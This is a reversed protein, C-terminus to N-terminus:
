NAAHMFQIEMQQLREKVQQNDAKLEAIEAKQAQLLQYLGQIAALAVGDADVTNITKDSTGLGFAAHFDQAMPGIHRIEDEQAKYNWTEIPMTAIKELVEVGNVANFNEKKNRDSISNWSGGGAALTSGATVAGSVNNIGTVMRVGGLARVAFENNATSVFDTTHYSSFLMAGEHTVKAKYGSALAYRNSIANDIGGLITSHRHDDGNTGIKNRQGGLVNSYLGHVENQIGGAIVAYQKTITNESGGSITASDGSVVNLIGGGVSAYPASTANRFGGAVTGYKQFTTGDGSDGVTNMSGGGIAGYDDYIQNLGSSTGGGSITIGKVGATILNGSYGGIINPSDGPAGTHEIRLVRENKVRFNLPINDTTGIFNTGDSLGSDGTLGWGSGGGSPAASCNWVNSGASTLIEGSACATAPEVVATGDLAPLTVTKTPTGSGDIAQVFRVGGTARVAFENPAISNFALAGATIGLSDSFLFSGGHGAAIKAKYGTAFSYPANITNGWGGPITSLDGYIENAYGGAITSSESNMIVNTNGGAVTSLEAAEIHNGFGGAITANDSNIIENKDGGGISTGRGSVSNESGGVVVSSNGSATNKWGGGVFSYFANRVNGDDSGCTNETGGAIVCYSDYITNIEEGGGDFNTGGGSIVSGIVNPDGITNNIYGAVINPSNETADPTSIRLVIKNNSKFVLGQADTTGIFNTGPTTGSNGGLKWDSSGTITGWAANGTADSILIKGASPTSSTIQLAGNITVADTSADGLTTNGNVTVNGAATTNAGSDAWASTGAPGTPGAAGAPGAPGTAGAPGVPGISGTAGTAGVAGPSGDAGISGVLSTAVGWAGTTKPGYIAKATTDIYFDGDTGLGAAPVGSGNLVTKGDAGDSGDAGDAGNAGAPGPLGDSGNAGSAGTAGSSGRSGTQGQPGVLSVAATSWGQATKPGYLKAATLDIYFDGENGTANDPQAQGSLFRNADMGDVGNQGDTGDQGDRGSSGATGATGKAVLLQWVSSNSPVLGANNASLSIYSNGQYHVADNEAYTRGNDWDNQWRLGPKGDIGAIGMKGPEGKEGREGKDGKEGKEGRQGQKGASGDAGNLALSTIRYHLVADIYHQEIQARYNLVQGNKIVLIEPIVGLGDSPFYFAQFEDQNQESLATAAFIAGEILYGSPKDIRQLLTSLGRVRRQTDDLNVVLPIYLEGSGVDYAAANQPRLRSVKLTNNDTRNLIVDYAFTKGQPQAVLNPITVQGALSDYQSDAIQDASNGVAQLAFESGMQLLGSSDLLKLEINDIQQHGDISVAQLYLVGDVPNFQSNALSNASSCLLSAALIGHISSSLTRHNM